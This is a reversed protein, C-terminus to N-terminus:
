ELQKVGHGLEYYIGRKCAILVENRDSLKVRGWEIM